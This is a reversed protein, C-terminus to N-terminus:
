HTNAQRYRNCSHPTRFLFLSEKTLTGVSGSKKIKNKFKIAFALDFFNPPSRFRSKRVTVAAKRM